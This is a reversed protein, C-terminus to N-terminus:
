LPTGDDVVCLDLAHAPCFAGIKTPVDYAVVSDPHLGPAWKMFNGPKGCVDCPAQRGVVPERVDSTPREDGDAGQPADLPATEPDPRHRDCRRIERPGSAFDLSAPSPTLFGLYTAPAGCKECRPEDGLSVALDFSREAPEQRVGEVKLAYVTRVPGTVVKTEVVLRKRGELLDELVDLIKDACRDLIEELRQARSNDM